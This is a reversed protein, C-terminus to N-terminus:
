DGAPGFVGDLVRPLAWGFDDRLSRAIRRRDDQSGPCAAAETGDGGPQLAHGVPHADLLHGLLLHWLLRYARAAHGPDDTLGNLARLASDAFAVASDVPYEGEAIVQAAWVHRSLHDYAETWQGIVQRRPDPDGPPAPLSVAVDDALLMLLEGRDAIHRYLSAQGTGLQEAVHRVTLAELGEGDAIHRAAAIIRERSLVRPRGPPRPNM